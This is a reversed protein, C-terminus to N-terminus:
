TTEKEPRTTEELLQDYIPTPEDPDHNDGQFEVTEAIVPIHVIRLDTAVTEVQPGSAEARIPIGDIRLSRPTITVTHM